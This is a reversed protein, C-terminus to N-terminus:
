TIKSFFHLIKSRQPSRGWVEMDKAATPNEGLGGAQPLKPSLKQVGIAKLLEAGLSGFCGGGM